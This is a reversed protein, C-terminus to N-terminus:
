VRIREFDRRSQESQRRTTRRNAPKLGMAILRDAWEDRGNWRLLRIHQSTPVLAVKDIRLHRIAEWQTASFVAEVWTSRGERPWTLTHDIAEAWRGQRVLWEVRLARAANARHPEDTNVASLDGDAAEFLGLEMLARARELRLKSLSDDAPDVVLQFAEDCAGIAETWQKAGTLAEVRAVKIELDKPELQVAKSTWEVADNWTRQHAAIDGMLATARVHSPELDLVKELIEIAPRWDNVYHLEDAVEVRADLQDIEGWVSCVKLLAKDVGWIARDLDDVVREIPIPIGIHASVWDNFAEVRAPHAETFYSCAVAISWERAMENAYEEERDAEDMSWRDRATRASYDWAHAVEHALTLAQELWLITGQVEPVRLTSEDYVYAFLEIDTPEIRRSYRFQGYRLPAWIGGPLEYGYRGILGDVEKDPNEDHTAEGLGVRLSIRRVTSRVNAPFRELLQRIDDETLPHHVHARADETVVELPVPFDATEPLARAESMRRKYRRKLALRDQVIAVRDEHQDLERYDWLRAQQLDRRTEHISRTV